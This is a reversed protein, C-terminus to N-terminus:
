VTRFVFYFAQSQMPLNKEEETLTDNLEAEAERIIKVKETLPLGVTALNIPIITPYFDVSRIFSPEEIVVMRELEFGAKNGLDRMRSTRFMEIDKPAGREISYREMLIRNLTLNLKVFVPNSNSGFKDFNKARSSDTDLATVQRPEMMVLTGGPKLLTKVKLLAEVICDDTEPKRGGEEHKKKLQNVPWHLVNNAIAVDFPVNSSFDMLLSNVVKLNASEAWFSNQRFCRRFFKLYEATREFRRGLVEKAGRQILWVEIDGNELLLFRMMEIMAKSSDIATISAPFFSSIAFATTGYGCGIDLIDKGRLGGSAMEALLASNQSQRLYSGRVWGEVSYIVPFLGEFLDGKPDYAHIPGSNM